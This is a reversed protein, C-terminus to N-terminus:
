GGGGGGGAAPDLQYRATFLSGVQQMRALQEQLSLVVNYNDQLKDCQQFFTFLGRSLCVYVRLNPFLM